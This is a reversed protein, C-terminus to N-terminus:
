LHNWAFFFIMVKEYSKLHLWVKYWFQLSHHSRFSQLQYSKWKLDDLPGFFIILERIAIVIYYRIYGLDYKSTKVIKVKTYMSIYKVIKKKNRYNVIVITYFNWIKLKNEIHLYNFSNEYLIPLHPRCIRKWIGCFFWKIWTLHYFM